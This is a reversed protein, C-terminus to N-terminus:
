VRSRPNPIGGPYSRQHPAAQFVAAKASSATNDRKQSRESAERRQIENIEVALKSRDSAPMASFNVGYEFGGGRPPTARAIIRGRLNLGPYNPRKLEFEVTRERELLILSRLRCGTESINILTGYVPAPLGSVGIAIPLEVSQRYTQRQNDLEGQYASRRSLWLMRLM